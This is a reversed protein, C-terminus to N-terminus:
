DTQLYGPNKWSAGAQEWNEHGISFVGAMADYGTDAVFAAFDRVRTVWVSFLVTTGPVPRFKMGLSNTFPESAASATAILAMAVGLRFANRFIRVLARASM